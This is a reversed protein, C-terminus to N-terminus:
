QTISRKFVCLLSTDQNKMFRRYKETITPRDCRTLFSRLVLELWSHIIKHLEIGNDTHDTAAPKSESIDQTFDSCNRRYEVSEHQESEVEHYQNCSM